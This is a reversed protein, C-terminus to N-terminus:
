YVARADQAPRTPAAVTEVNRNLQKSLIEIVPTCSERAAKLKEPDLPGNDAAQDISIKYRRELEKGTARLLFRKSTLDGIQQGTFIIEQLPSERWASTDWIMPKDLTYQSYEQGGWTVKEFPVGEPRSFTKINHVYFWVIMRRKIPAEPQKECVQCPFDPDIKSLKPCYVRKGFKSAPDDVQHALYIEFWKDGENGDGVFHLTAIDGEDLNFWDGGGEPRERNFAEQREQLEKLSSM